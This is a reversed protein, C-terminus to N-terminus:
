KIKKGNEANIQMKGVFITGKEYKPAIQQEIETRWFIDGNNNAIAYLYNDTSVVFAYNETTVFPEAVSIDVCWQKAGSTANIKCFADGLGGAFVANKHIVLPAVIDVMSAGGTMNSARYVDTIWMIKRSQPQVKIVEGTTLGAYVYKGDCIPKQNSKVSNSTAFGNFIKREGHWVTNTADQTYPCDSNKNTIVSEPIDTINKNKVDINSTNFISTRVGPLIPDHKDCATLALACCIFASLKRM